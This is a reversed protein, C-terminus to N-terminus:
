VGMTGARGSPLGYRACFATVVERLADDLAELTRSAIRIADEFHSSELFAIVAPPVTGQCSEDFAYTSRIDDLGRRLDYGFMRELPPFEMTKTGIFEHVSGIVDGAIAGVM